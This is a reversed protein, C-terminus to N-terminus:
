KCEICQQPMLYINESTNVTAVNNKMILVMALISVYEHM